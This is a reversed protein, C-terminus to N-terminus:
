SAALAEKVRAVKAKAVPIKTGNRLFIFYREASKELSLIANFSVWHSRHVRIGSNKPVLSIADKMSMRNLHRGKETTIEVYHDQASLSLLPGHKHVPIVQEIAKKAHRKQYQFMCVKSNIRLSMYGLALAFFVLIKWFLDKFYLIGSEYFYSPIIPEVLSFVVASLVINILTLVWLRVGHTLHFPFLFAAMYLPIIAALLGALTIVLPRWPGYDVGPLSFGRTSFALITLGLVLLYFDVSLLHAKVFGRTSELVDQKTVKESKQIRAYVTELRLITHDFEKARRRELRFFFQTFFNFIQRLHIGIRQFNERNDVYKCLICFYIRIQM